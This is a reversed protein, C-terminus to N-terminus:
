KSPNAAFYATAKKLINREERLQANEKKLRKLEAELASTSPSNLAPREPAYHSIWGCLTNVNVDLERAIQAYPKNSTLALEVASKKFELAYQKNVKKNM